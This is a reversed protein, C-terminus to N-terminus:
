PRRVVRYFQEPPSPSVGTEISPAPLTLVLTTQTAAASAGSDSWAPDQLSAKTQAQYFFGPTSVVTLTLASRALTVNTIQPAPLPSSNATGASATELFDIVGGGDPTRGQSINPVQSAFTLRDIVTGDPATLTITEGSASLKFPAHLASPPTNQTNQDDCWVILRGGAPLEYGAPIFFHSPAPTSDSLRWGGLNVPTTTPNLLEIWDDPQGDAPDTVSGNNSAMWENIVVAPWQSTGTYTITVSQAGIETGATDVARVQYAHTGPAPTLSLRWATVSTWTVPYALGNVLLTSAQVPATGSLTATPTDVTVTPASTVAFAARVKNLERELFSRRQDIWQPISLGYAGGAVFPSALSVGNPAFTAYKKQLLPTVATGKFFTALAEHITRWYLRRFAPFAQLADVKADVTSPFLPADVPDNFVGLGVDMDWTFQTWRGAPPKYLYTNKHNPNGFGDWYSCLDHFAFTRMWNEVDVVAEVSQQYSAAPTNVADILTFLDSFTNASRAARPRWNWRYRALKKQGGSTYHRLLNDVPSSTTNADDAGENWNNSKHLPGGDDQPFFEQILSQDPQQIDDYIVGRKTGNVYLHVYRRYLHPLGLQEAMWYMLQERQNTTDRIPLDLTLHDEALVEDDPPVIVNYGCLPGSVPSGYGPTSAESGAYWAGAGYIARVGGYIFTADVPENGFKERASWKAVTASTMWLRYAGFAGAQAREGVRVLCEHAPADPPFMSTGAVAAADTAEVRFVILSGSNQAPITGTFIGDAALADGDAGNDHMSAQNFLAAAQGKWWVVAGRIGDPDALRARVQIPVGAPPLLPSHSVDDISPGANATARSNATGPTGLATPVTLSTLTELSGGKLRVILEPHGRLWRAQAKVTARSNLRLPPSVPAYVRNGDPEGKESARLYFAQSGGLGLGAVVSSRSQNGQPKWSGLGNEFGGNSVVTTGGDPIVAVDDILAEGEGMLFFQVRDVSAVAPHGFDLPGAVQVTTWPAKASEDSDAWSSALERDARLDTVELSSGGGAAWRSWRSGARYTVADVEVEIATNGVMETRVLTVREGQNSLTGAYDGVIQNPSLEPYRLRTRAADRAVVIWGGAPIRTGAPLTLTIGDTFKWGDLDLARDGPNHLELWEDRDDDSIPDFFLESIMIEPQRLGGNGTGPTATALSRLPGSEDRARGVSVGAAGGGSHVGDLVRTGAPDTLFVAGGAAALEFGLQAETFVVQAGAAVVTGAPIVYRGLAAADDSLQCGTLDVATPGDNRLEIFGDALAGPRRLIENVRVRDLPAAPETDGAGPSGGVAASAAWAEASGEGYSPRALVLSHGAGDATVPWPARDSWEVELIVAGGPKQVRLTGGGNSLRQTMGGVVGTLGYVAQLDTPAAAVVLYGLGPIQTGAPLTFEVDGALRWGSVDETWPQSNYLEIFELNKGDERPAPHYHIETVAVGTRRSSPGAGEWNGQAWATTGVAMVVGLGGVRIGDRWRGTVELIRM